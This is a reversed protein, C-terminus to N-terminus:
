VTGFGVLRVWMGILGLVGLLEWVLGVGMGKMVSSSSWDMSM